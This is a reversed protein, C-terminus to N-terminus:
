KLNHRRVYYPLPGSPYRSLFGATAMVHLLLPTKLLKKHVIGCIPYCMGRGKNYWDHLVPQFAKVM